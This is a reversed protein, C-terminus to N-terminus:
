KRMELLSPIKTIVDSFIDQASFNFIKSIAYIPNGVFLFDNGPKQFSIMIVSKRLGVGSQLTARAQWTRRIAKLTM